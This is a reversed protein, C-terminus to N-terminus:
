PLAVTKAEVKYKSYADMKSSSKAVTITITVSADTGNTHSTDIELHANEM